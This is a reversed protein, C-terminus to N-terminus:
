SHLTDDIIDGTKTYSSDAPHIMIGQSCPDVFIGNTQEQCESFSREDVHSEHRM